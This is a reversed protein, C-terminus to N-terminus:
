SNLMSASKGTELLWMPHSMGPQVKMKLLDWGEDLNPPACVCACLGVCVCIVYLYNKFKPLLFAHSQLSSYSTLSCSTRGYLFSHPAWLAQGTTRKYLFHTHFAQLFLCLVKAVRSHNVSRFQNEAPVAQRELEQLNGAHKSIQPIILVIASPSHQRAM